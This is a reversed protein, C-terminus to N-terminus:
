SSDSRTAWLMELSSSKPLHEILWVYLMVKEKKLHNKEEQHNWGEFFLKDVDLWCDIFTDQQDDPEVEEDEEIAILGPRVEPEVTLMSELM